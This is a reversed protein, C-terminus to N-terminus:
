LGEYFIDFGQGRAACPVLVAPARTFVHPNWGGCELIELTRLFMRRAAVASRACVKPTDRLGERSPDEGLGLLLERVAEVVEQPM